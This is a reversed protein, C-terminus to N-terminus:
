CLGDDWAPRDTGFREVLFDIFARLRAPLLRSAPWLAHLAILRAECEPLVRVLAGTRLEPGCLFTPLLTIGAGAIAAAKLVDGNNVCLREPVDIVSEGEAGGLHWRAGTAFWGYHLLRHATLEEPRAPMGAQALYGPAACLVRRVPCLRRAILSSGRLAGIRLVLDYGEDIVAVFRDTLTLQIAIGSHLRQFDIMAPALYMQGFSMPANIRLTGRPQVQSQMLEGTAHRYEGLFRQCSEYFASGAGTVSLRRTTRHLLQVGLTRELASLRKSVLARSIGLQRAAGLFGGAEVVAVFAEMGAIRDM